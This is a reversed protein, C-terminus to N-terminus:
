RGQIRFDRITTIDCNESTLSQRFYDSTMDCDCFLTQTMIIYEKTYLFHLFRFLVPCMKYERFIYKSTYFYSLNLIGNMMVIQKNKIDLYM